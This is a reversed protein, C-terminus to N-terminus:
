KMKNIMEDGRKSRREKVRRGIYITPSVKPSVRESKITVNYKDKTNDPTQTTYLNDGSCIIPHPISKVLENIIESYWGEM